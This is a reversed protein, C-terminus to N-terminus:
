FLIALNLGRLTEAMGELKEHAHISLTGVTHYEPGVHHNFDPKEKLVRLLKQSPM